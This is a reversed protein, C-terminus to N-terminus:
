RMVVKYQRDKGANGMSEPLLNGERAKLKLAEEVEFCGEGMVVDYPSSIMPGFALVWKPGMSGEGRGHESHRSGQIKGFLYGRLWDRPSCWGEGCNLTFPMEM